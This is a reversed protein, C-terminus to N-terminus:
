RRAKPKAYFRRPKQLNLLPGRFCRRVFSDFAREDPTRHTVGHRLHGRGRRHNPADGQQLGRNRVCVTRGAVHLTALAGLVAAM